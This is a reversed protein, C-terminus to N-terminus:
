SFTIETSPTAGFNDNQENIVDEATVTHSDWEYDTTTHADAILTIEFGRDLASHATNRVCNNTQAGCIFLHNVKLRSLEDALPTKHFSSRETKYIRVENADPVLDAVIEWGKSHLPMENDSHQVWIVPISQSRAKSVLSKITGIVQDRNFAGDMVDNQVDIVLLASKKEGNTPSM